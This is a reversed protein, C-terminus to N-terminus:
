PWVWGHILAASVTGAVLGPGLPLSRRGLLLGLLATSGTALCLALLGIRPDLLGAAAGAVAALKVDGFGISAPSALHGVLLPAALAVVGLSAGALVVAGDSVVTALAVTAVTLALLAVLRNPIRGTRVDVTAAVGGIVLVAVIGVAPGFRASAVFAVVAPLAWRVLAATTAGAPLQSPVGARAPTITRTEM